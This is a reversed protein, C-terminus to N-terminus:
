ELIRAEMQELFNAELQLTVLGTIQVMLTAIDSVLQKRKLAQEYIKHLGINYGVGIVRKPHYPKGLSISLIVQQGSPVFTGQVIKEQLDVITKSVERSAKSTYRMDPYFHALRWTTEITIPIPEFSIYEVKGAEFSQCEVRMWEWDHRKEEM